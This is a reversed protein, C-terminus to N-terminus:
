LQNPREARFQRKVLDAPRATSEDPITTRCRRGRRAGQLGAARMLRAVTCRAVPIGERRLQLWVKRAGYVQFNVHHVRRIEGLLQTDRHRRPAVPRRGAQQAKHEYYVSPAIPLMAFIPEVGYQGRHEDIFAIM